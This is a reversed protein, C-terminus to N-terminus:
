KYQKTEPIPGQVARAAPAKMGPNPKAGFANCHWDLGGPDHVVGGAVGAVTPLGGTGGTILGGQVGACVKFVWLLPNLSASKSCLVGCRDCAGVAM